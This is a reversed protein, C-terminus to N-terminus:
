LPVSGSYKSSALGIQDAVIRECRRRTPHEEDAHHETYKNTSIIAARPLKRLGETVPKRRLRM